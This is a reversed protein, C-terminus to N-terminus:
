VFVWDQISQESPLASLFLCEPLFSLTKQFHTKFFSIGPLAMEPITMGPLAMEPLAMEPLAMESLAMGPLAMEPLAINWSSVIGSSDKVLHEENL